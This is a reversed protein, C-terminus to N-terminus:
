CGNREIYGKNFSALTKGNNSALGLEAKMLNSIRIMEDLSRYTVEKDAYKVILAGNAISDQLATLQELTYAM